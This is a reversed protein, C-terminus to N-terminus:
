KFEWKTGNENAPKNRLEGRDRVGLCHCILAGVDDFEDMDLLSQARLLIERVICCIQEFSVLSEGEEVTEMLLMQM